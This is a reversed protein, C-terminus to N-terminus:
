LNSLMSGVFEKLENFDMDGMMWNHRSCIWIVNNPETIKGGKSQPTIHGIELPFVREEGYRNTEFRCFEDNFVCKIPLGIRGVIKDFLEGREEVSLITGERRLHDRFRKVYTKRIDTGDEKRKKELCEKCFSTVGKNETTKEITKSPYFESLSKIKICGGCRKNESTTDKQPKHKLKLNYRAFYEVSRYSKTSSLLEMLSPHYRPKKRGLLPFFEKIIELQQETWKPTKSM